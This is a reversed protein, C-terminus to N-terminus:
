RPDVSYPPGATGDGAAAPALAPPRWPSSLVQFPMSNDECRPPVTGLYYRLGYQWDRKIDGVCVAGPHLAVEAALSRATAVRAMAALSHTKLYTTGAAVGVAITVVAAVRRGQGELIWVAAVALLPLLWTWHFHIAPASDWENAAAYPFLPAALPFVVLLAACAALWRRAAALEDLALGALAAIAPFLPLVYGPLKNVSASFVALGFLAWAALFRRRPDSLGTRRFLLVLLPLWPLMLPPLLMLYYYWPRVHLLEGSAFRGFHHKVFFEDVFARGNRAYCLAYWPGAVAVFPILVRPRLLDRLWRWRLVLPAALAIPVLGKALAAAGLLASALPLYRGDRNGIWPLALLMAASFTATLPLDTVGVQSYGIWAASSGLIVTAIVAARCGFERKLIWWYFGLFAVSLMAVPLRPALDPGLGLRFAAGTMWYLLAPKEFWPQGWLRPTVWDGTQAMARGIWAYRPEDPGILGAGGLRFFYLLYALPAVLWLLRPIKRAV